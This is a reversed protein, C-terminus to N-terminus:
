GRGGDGCSGDRLMAAPDLKALGSSRRALCAEVLDPAEVHSHELLYGLRRFVARNGLRDGCRVLLAEDRYQGRLYEALM